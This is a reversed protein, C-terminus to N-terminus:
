WYNPLGTAQRLLSWGMAAVALSELVLLARTLPANLFEFRLLLALILGAGYLTRSVGRDTFNEFVLVALYFVLPVNSDAQKRYLFYVVVIAFVILLLTTINLATADFYM